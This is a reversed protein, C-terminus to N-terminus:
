GAVETLTITSVTRAYGPASSDTQSRNVFVYQGSASSRVQIKYTTADTTSPSDLNDVGQTTVLDTGVSAAAGFSALIQSGAADGVAIPTSGRLLRGMVSSQNTTGSCSLVVSVLIKSSTSSPTITAALGTVDSFTTSSM